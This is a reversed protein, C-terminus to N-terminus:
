RASRPTMGAGARARARDLLEAVRRRLQPRDGDNIIVEDAAARKRDLPWQARERRDLEEETWGRSEALRRLRVQRPAEVFVVVDCESDVGAELLLPADIVAVTTGRARAQAILEARKSKVLPHVLSELREREAPRDFVIKAVAARDVRGQADLVGTGWWEVLRSKVEPRELAARAETDSDVVLAGQEAMARAVESKGAGIGGVLGIVAVGEHTRAPGPAAATAVPSPGPGAPGDMAARVKRMVMEPDDVHLFYVETWATGPTALGVTGVGLLRELLSRHVTAHQISRLPLDAIDRRLVGARRVVRRDTLLYSRCAWELSEWMFKLLVIAAAGLAVWGGGAARAAGFGWWALAAILGMVVALALSRILVFWVSPRIALLVTEGSGPGASM